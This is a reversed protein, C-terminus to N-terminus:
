FPHGLTLHFNWREFGRAGPPDPNYGVDFRVPGVPTTVGLGLGVANSFGASSVNTFSSFVNGFDYFVAGSFWGALPFRLEINAILLANGGLPVPRGAPDPNGFEDVLIIEGSEDDRLLPVALDNPLGRLTTAGGSFFRESIPVPNEASIDSTQAFAKILGIRLSSALVLEPILEHYYQGQALIRFFQRESGLLRASLLTDGSLFFGNRPDTPDDRSENLYSTSVSSLSLREEERFFQLPSALSDPVNSRIDEYNYRFFLSERRSLRRETQASAILRFSDFPRGRLARQGGGINEKLAKENDATFSFITPLEWRLFHPINYSLSGRQRQSGARLGLSLARAQGRFNGDTFGFTGRPGEFSSYGLGYLLTYRPAEDLRILVSKDAPNTGSEVEEIRVRDFIALNYLNTETQLIRDLSLPDGPQIEVEREIVSRKTVRNGAIIVHETFSQVGEQVFYTLRVKGPESYVVDSRVEVQRFGLNEYTAILNSRDQALVLPSFPSGPQSTIERLLLERDLQQNGFIRVQQLQHRLGEKIRFVVRLDEAQDDELDVRAEVSADAFGQQQYHTRLRDEDRGLIETSFRSSQFIGGEKLTLLPLLSERGISLNGEFKIGALSRKRGKEVKVFLSEPKQDSKLSSEVEVPFYGEEELRRRLEQGTKESRVLPPGPESFLPLEGLGSQDLDIGEMHVITRERPLVRLTLSVSNTRPDHRVGGRLYIEPQLFGELALQRRLRDLDEQQKIFSYSGGETMEISRRVKDLDWPEDVEVELQGITSQRGPEVALILDLQALERDAEFSPQIQAQYFGHKRYLQLLRSVTEELLTESYPEGRRLVLERRLQRKEVKLSGTFRIKRMLFRRILVLNVDVQDPDVAAVDIQVDHFVQTSYLSRITRKARSSTYPQGVQLESLKLVDKPTVLTLPGDSQLEIRRVLKGEYSSTSGLLCLLSSWALVSYCLYHRAQLRTNCRVLLLCCSTQQLHIARFFLTM